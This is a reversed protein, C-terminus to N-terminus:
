YAFIAFLSEFHSKYVRIYRGIRAKIEDFRARYTPELGCTQNKQWITDADFLHEIPDTSRLKIRDQPPFTM